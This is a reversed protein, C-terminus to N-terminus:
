TEGIRAALRDMVHGLVVDDMNHEIEGAMTEYLHDLLASVAQCQVHDFADIRGSELQFLFQSLFYREGAGRTLRALGPMFHIFAEDSLFHLPHWAENEVVEFAVNQATQDQMTLNHEACEPCDVTHNPDRGLHEPREARFADDIAAILM